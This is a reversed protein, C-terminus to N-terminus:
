FIAECRLGGIPKTFVSRVAQSKENFDTKKSRLKTVLLATLSLGAIWDKVGIASLVSIVPTRIYDSFLISVDGSFLMIPFM